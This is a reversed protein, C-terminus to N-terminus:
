LIENYDNGKGWPLISITITVDQLDIEVLIDDLAPQSWDYGSEEIHEGLPYTEMLRGDLFIDVLVSDDGQRPLNFEYSGDPEPEPAYSFPGKQPSYSELELGNWNGRIRVDMQHPNDEDRNTFRLTTKCYEKRLNVKDYADERDTDVKAFYGFIKDAQEGEPITLTWSSLVSKRMGAMACYNVTGRPVKFRHIEDFNVKPVSIDIVTNGSCWGKLAVNDAHKSCTGMDVEFWCPCPQRDEKVSCSSAILLASLLM